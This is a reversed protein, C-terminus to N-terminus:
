SGLCGVRRKRGASCGGIRVPGRERRWDPLICCRWRLLHRWLARRRPTFSSLVRLLFNTTRNLRFSRTSSTTPSPLSALHHVLRFCRRLHFPGRPLVSLLPLYLCSEKSEPLARVHSLSPLLM